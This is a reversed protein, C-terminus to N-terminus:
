ERTPQRNIWILKRLNIRESEEGGIRGKSQGVEEAGIWQEM